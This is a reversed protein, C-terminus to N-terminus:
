ALHHTPGSRPAFLEARMGSGGLWIASVAATLSLESRPVPWACMHGTSVLENNSANYNVDLIRTKCTM